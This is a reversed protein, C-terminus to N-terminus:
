LAEMLAALAQADEQATAWSTVFRIAVHAEDVDCWREFEVQEALRAEQERTVIPFIQNTQTSILAKVGGREMGARIIDAMENAHRAWAFYDEHELATLFMVGCLRGKAIMGGRNKIMFRFDKQLAPNVIVLAEGFLLGNKTGGIYFADTLAAMDALTMGSAALASGLRAGDAYLLLGNRDCVERLARLEEMSYVTGIETPQSIYVVRPHVMHEDTHADVVAQVGQPLVKGDRSDAICVKHGSGEITGTEHVNIHGTQAAIAAEYPRMFASLAVMNTSTGGIMMHVAAEPKGCLTRILEAARLSYADLGYGCTHEMNTQMLRQMVLPHAGEGYDNRFFLKNM